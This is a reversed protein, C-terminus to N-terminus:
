RNKQGSVDGLSVPLCLVVTCGGEPLNYFQTTGGHARIIQRVITLGLGHNQLGASNEPRNLNELIEQPFGAGNDAVTFFCNGLGKELAAKIACGKPNHRISNAILNAVARRLLEEDGTVAANQAEKGITVDMAYRHDLGSNLFDAVLGRLLAALGVSSRRLPQMDYALKSTLNLDSVLVKIRESQRRIIGAQ